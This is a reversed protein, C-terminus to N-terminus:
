PKITYNFLKDRTRVTLIMQSETVPTLAVIPIWANALTLEYTERWISNGNQDFLLVQGETYRKEPALNEGNDRLMGFAVFGSDSVVISNITLSKEFNYWWADKEQLQNKFFKVTRADTVTIFEGNPSIAVNRVPHKLSSSDIPKDSEFLVFERISSSSNGIVRHAGNAVDFFRYFKNKINWLKCLKSGDKAFAMLGAKPDNLVFVKGDPSFLTVTPSIAKIQGIENGELDYFHFTYPMEMGEPRKEVSVGVIMQADSSVLFSIFGSSPEIETIVKGDFTKLEFLNIFEREITMISVFKGDMSLNARQGPLLEILTSVKGSSDVGAVQKRTLGISMMKELLFATQYLEGGLEKQQNIEWNLTYEKQADVPTAFLIFCCPLLITIFFILFKIQRM